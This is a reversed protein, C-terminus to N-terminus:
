PNKIKKDKEKFLYRRLIMAPLRKLVWLAFHEFAIEGSLVKLYGLIVEKKRLPTGFIVNPFRFSIGTVRRSWVLDPKIKKYLRVQYKKIMKKSFDNQKHAELAIKAAQKGSVVAYRIGEGSFCDVLGAADGALMIRDTYIKHHFNSIPIFCGKIKVPQRVNKDHLFRRFIKKLNKSCCYQGGIGYSIYEKKPFVWAYGINNYGYYLEILNQTRRQIEKDHMPVDAILCYCMENDAFPPRVIKRTQSFIGDAGIVINAKYQNLDTRVLVYDNLVELHTCKEGENIIAGAKRANDALFEDFKSRTTMIAIFSDSLVKNQINGQKVYLGYCKREKLEDPLDFDLEKLTGLSIGGACRKERPIREKELLLTNLNYKSCYRAATAGAPGAGIVIVDYKKM